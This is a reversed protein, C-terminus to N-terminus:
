RRRRFRRVIDQLEGEEEPSIPPYSFKCIRGRGQYIFCHFRRWSRGVTVFWHVQSIIVAQPRHILDELCIYLFRVDDGTRAAHIRLWTPYQLTVPRDLICDEPIPCQPFMPVAFGRRQQWDRCGCPNVLACDRCLRAKCCTMM